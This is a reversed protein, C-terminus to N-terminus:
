SYILLLCKCVENYHTTTETLMTNKDQLKMDQLKVGQLVMDQLKIDQGAARCNQHDTM